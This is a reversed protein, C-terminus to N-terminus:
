ASLERAVVQDTGARRGHLRVKRWISSRQRGLRPTASSRHRVGSRTRAANAAVLAAVTQPPIRSM